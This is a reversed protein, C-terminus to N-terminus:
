VCVEIGFPSTLVTGHLNQFWMGRAGLRHKQGHQLLDLLSKAAAVSLSRCTEVTWEQPVNRDAM